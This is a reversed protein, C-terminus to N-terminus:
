NAAHARWPARGQLVQALFPFVQAKIAAWAQQRNHLEVTLTEAM